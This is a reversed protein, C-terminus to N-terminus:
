SGPIGLKIRCTVSFSLFFRSDRSSAEHRCRPLRSGTQTAPGGGVRSALPGARDPSRRGVLWELPCLDISM